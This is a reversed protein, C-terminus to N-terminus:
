LVTGVLRSRLWPTLQFAGNETVLNYRENSHYAGVSNSEVDYIGIIDESPIAANVDPSRQDIVAISKESTTKAFDILDEDHGISNIYHIIDIFDPSQVFNDVGLPEDLDPVVGCVSGKPLGMEKILEVPMWTAVKVKGDTAFELLADSSWGLKATDVVCQTITIADM